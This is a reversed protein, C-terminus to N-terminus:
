NSKSNENIKGFRERVEEILKSNSTFVEWNYVKAYELIQQVKKEEEETREYEPLAIGVVKDLSIQDKVHWEDNYQSIREKSPDCSVGLRKECKIAPIDGLIIFCPMGFVFGPFSSEFLYPVDDAHCLDVENNWAAVSIYDDGNFGRNSLELKQMRRSKIAGDEIIKLMIDYNEETEGTAHYFFDVENIDM